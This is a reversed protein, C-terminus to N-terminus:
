PISINQPASRCGWLFTARGRNGGSAPRTRLSYPLRRVHGSYCERGGHTVAFAGEAKGDAPRVVIEARDARGGDAPADDPVQAFEIGLPLREVGDTHGLPFFGTAGARIMLEVACGALVDHGQGRQAQDRAGLGGP